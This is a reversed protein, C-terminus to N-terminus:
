RIAAGRRVVVVAAVVLGVGLGLSAAVAARAAVVPFSFPVQTRTLTTVDTVGSFIAIVFGTFGAGFVGLESRRQLPGVSCAGAVWGVTVFFGGLVVKALMYLLSDRSPAATAFSHVVDIAVVGAVAASLLAPWRRTWACAATLSALGLAALLWPLPNPGPVWTISGTVAIPADGRRLEITWTPVVVHSAGSDARVVDADPGEWRTRRDRWVVRHGGSKHRWEPAARPDASQPVVDGSVLGQNQAANLYIAPSRVNEFVGGAGIRLYPEGSYGLVVIEARTSNVLEVRRGLDLLRVRLGPTAPAISTIRSRYNTAAVGTVTHAAAPPAAAVLAGTGILVVLAGRRTGRM